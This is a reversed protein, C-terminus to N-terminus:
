VYRIENQVTTIEKDGRIDNFYLLKLLFKFKFVFEKCKINARLKRCSLTKNFYYHSFTNSFLKYM